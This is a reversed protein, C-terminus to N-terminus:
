NEESQKYTKRSELKAQALGTRNWQMHHKMYELM